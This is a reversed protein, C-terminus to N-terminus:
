LLEGEGRGRERDTPGGSGQVESSGAPLEVMSSAIEFYSCWRMGGTACVNYAKGSKREGARRKEREIKGGRGRGKGKEGVSRGEM